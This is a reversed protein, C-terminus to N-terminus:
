NWYVVKNKGRFTQFFVKKFKKDVFFYIFFNIASNMMIFWDHVQKLIQMQFPYHWNGDNKCNIYDEFNLWKYINYITRPFNCIFFLIVVSILVLNINNKQGNRRSQRTSNFISFNFFSVYKFLCVKPLVSVLTHIFIPYLIKKSCRM